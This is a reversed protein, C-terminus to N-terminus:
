KIKCHSEIIPLSAQAILAKVRKIQKRLHLAPAPKEGIRKIEQQISNAYEKNAHPLKLYLEILHDAQNTYGAMASPIFPKPSKFFTIRRAHPSSKFPSFSRNPYSFLYPELSNPNLNLYNTASESINKNLLGAKELCAQVHIAATDNHTTIILHKNTITTNQIDLAWLTSEIKLKLDKLIINKLYPTLNSKQTSLTIKLINQQRTLKFPLQQGLLENAALQFANACSEITLTSDYPTAPIDPVQDSEEQALTV